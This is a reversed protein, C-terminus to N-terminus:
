ALPSFDGCRTVSFSSPAGVPAEAEAPGPMATETPPGLPLTTGRARLVLALGLGLGKCLNKCFEEDTESEESRLKHNVHVPRLKINSAAAFKSLAILLATSDPGGSIAVVPRRLSWSDAEGSLQEIYSFFNRRVREIFREKYETIEPFEASKM